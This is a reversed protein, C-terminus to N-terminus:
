NPLNCLPLLGAAQARLTTFSEICNAFQFQKKMKNKLLMMQIPSFFSWTFVKSVMFGAKEEIILGKQSAKKNLQALINTFCIVL